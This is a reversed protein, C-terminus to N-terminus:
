PSHITARPLHTAVIASAGKREDRQPCDSVVSMLNNGIGWQIAHQLQNLPAATLSPSVVNGAMQVGTRIFVGTITDLTPTFPLGTLEVFRFGHYTFVPEFVEAGESVGGTTYVDTALASRLNGVYISGDRDGYPPHMLLEAHRIKIVLGAPVPAPLTLRVFGAINQGLDFIFVGPAPSSISIPVIEAQASVAPFSQPTMTTPHAGGPDAMLVAATWAGSSYNYSPLDWGITAKSQDWTCGNYVNDYQLAGAGCMWEGAAVGRLPAGVREFGGATSAWTAVKGDSTRVRIQVRVQRLEGNNDTVKAFPAPGALRAAILEAASPVASAEVDYSSNGPM